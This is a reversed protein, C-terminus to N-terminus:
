GQSGQTYYPLDVIVGDIPAIIRTKAMSLNASVLVSKANATNIEATKLDFLTVGGKEFLSKQQTLSVPQLSSILSLPKLNSIM